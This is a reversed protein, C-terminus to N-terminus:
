VEATWSGVINVVKWATASSRRLTIQNGITDSELYKGAGNGYPVISSTADPDIRLLQAARVEFTIDPADPQHGVDLTATKLGSTAANHITRVYQYEAIIVSTNLDRVLLERRDRVEGSGFHDMSNSTAGELELPDIVDVNVLSDSEQDLFYFDNIMLPTSRNDVSTPETIRVNGISAAGTDGSARWVSISSSATPAAGSAANPRYSVPRVIDVRPGNADFNFISISSNRAIRFGADCNKNHHNLITISVDKDVAGDINHLAIEIGQGANSDTFCNEIIIDELFDDNSDPEIDIGSEPSNGSTNTFRSNIVRLGKVSTISLGQRSNADGIVDRLIINTCYDPTGNGVYFGDGGCNSCEL